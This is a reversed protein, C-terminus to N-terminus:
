FRMFIMHSDCFYDSDKRHTTRTARRQEEAHRTAQQRGKSATSRQEAQDETSGRRPDQQHSPCRGKRKKERGAKPGSSPIVGEATSIPITPPTGWQGPWRDSCLCFVHCLCKSQLAAAWAMALGTGFGNGFGNCCFFVNGNSNTFANHNCIRQGLWQWVLALAVAASKAQASPDLVMHHNEVCRAAAPNVLQQVRTAWHLNPPRHLSRSAMVESTTQPLNGIGFGSGFGTSFGNGFLFAMVLVMTLAIELAKHLVGKM